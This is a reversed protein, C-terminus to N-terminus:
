IAVGQLNFVLASTKYVKIALEQGDSKTAHYVNAEKGTSICASIDDFVQHNLMKFLVMRTRELPSARVHTPSNRARIPCANLLPRGPVRTFGEMLM